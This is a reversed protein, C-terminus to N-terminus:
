TEMTVVHDHMAAVINGVWADLDTEFGVQGALQLDIDFMETHGDPLGFSEHSAMLDAFRQSPRSHERSIVLLKREVELAAHEWRFVLRAHLKWGRREWQRLRDANGKGIKGLWLHEPHTIFYVYWDAGIRESGPIQPLEIVTM